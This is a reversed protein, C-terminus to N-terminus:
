ARKAERVPITSRDSLPPVLFVAWPELLPTQSTNTSLQVTPPSFASELCSQHRQLSLANSDENVSANMRWEDASMFTLTPRIYTCVYM